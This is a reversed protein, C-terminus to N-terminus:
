LKGEKVLDISSPSTQIKMIATDSKSELFDKVREVQKPVTNKPFDQFAFYKIEQAEENLTIEWSIVKCEFSFVVDDKNSKTYVGVLKTIEVDLGTEEKVERIMAQWPSEGSEVGGGPLNRLAYDNRLCLLIRGEDDRIIGFVGIPFTTKM